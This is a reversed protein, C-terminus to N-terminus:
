YFRPLSTQDRGREYFIEPLDRIAIRFYYEWRGVEYSRRFQAEWCHLDRVLNYSQAVVARDMLDYRLRYELRWKPTFRFATDFTGQLSKDAGGGGAYALTGGAVFARPFLDGPVATAGYPRALASEAGGDLDGGASGGYGLLDEDSRAGSEGTRAGAAAAGSGAAAARGARTYRIRATMDYRTPRKEYPDYTTAYGVEFDRGIGPRLRADVRIPTFRRESRNSLDFTSNLTLTLFDRVPRLQGQPGGPLRTEFRNQLGLAISSSAPGVEVDDRSDFRKAFALAASPTLIHRFGHFPGLPRGFTGYLESRLGLGATYQGRFVDSPGRGIVGATDAALEIYEDWNSSVSFAPTLTLAGARRGDSVSARAAAAQLYDSGARRSDFGRRYDSSFSYNTSALAPWRGGRGKADPRRGLPRSQFSYAIAPFTGTITGKGPQTAGAVNQLNQTREVTIRASQTSWSKAFSVNSRLQTEFRDEGTQGQDDVRFERDSLFDANAQLTRRQGLDQRHSGRVDWRQEGQGFSWKTLVDGNLRYRQAYRFDVNGIVYPSYEAFDGWMKMDAYDNIVYYYGANRVFRGRTDSFGFEIQPMLIGSHRGRKIPFIYYPLAMFPVNRIFLGVPRTVVKDDLYIKMKQGTFHYHPEALNCTTYSAGEVNFVGDGAKYLENGTYVGRDFTTEGDRVRGSRTGFAYAMESGKMKQEGDALLPSGTALLTREEVSFRVKGATLHMDQYFLEANRELLIEDREVLFDIRNAQYRVSQTVSDSPALALRLPEPLAPAVTDAPVAAAALTDLAAAALTDAIAAPASPRYFYEGTAQGQLIVREAKGEGLTVQIRDAQAVNRLAGSERGERGPLYVSGANGSLSVTRAEGDAFEVALADGSLQMEEDDGEAGRRYTARATGRASLGALKGREFDLALTDGSVLGNADRLMPSGTLVARHDDRYFVASDATAEAAEERVVVNGRAIVERGEGRFAFDGATIQVPKGEDELVISARELLKLDGTRRRYEAVEGRLTAEEKGTQEIEVHDFAMARDEAFWYVLSDARVRRERDVVNVGGGLRAVRSNREYTARPARITLEDRAVLVNGSLTGIGARVDFTGYDGTITTPGDVIRVDGDITAYQVTRDYRGVRGTITTARHEIRVSDIVICPVGDITVYRLRTGNIRTSLSDGAAGGPLLPIPAAAPPAAAPPEAAPPEAAAGMAAAGLVAALLAAAVRAAALHDHTRLRLRLM